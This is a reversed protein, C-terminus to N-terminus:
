GQRRRDGTTEYIYRAVFYAIPIALAFGGLGAVVIPVLTDQGIVLAVIILIGALTPGTLAYILAPLRIM